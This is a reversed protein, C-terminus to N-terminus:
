WEDDGLDVERDLGEFEEQVRMTRAMFASDQAAEKMKMEYSLRKMKKLYDYIANNIGETLSSIKEEKVLMELQDKLDKELNITSKVIPM